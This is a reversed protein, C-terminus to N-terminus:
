QLMSSSSHSRFPHVFEPSIRHPDCQGTPQGSLLHRLIQAHAQGYQVSPDRCLAVSLPYRVFAQVTGSLVLPKSSLVANELPLPIACLFAGCGEERAIPWSPTARCINAFCLNLPNLHMSSYPQAMADVRALGAIESARRPPQGFSILDVRRRSPGPASASGSYAASCRVSKRAANMAVRCSGFMFVNRSRRYFAAM